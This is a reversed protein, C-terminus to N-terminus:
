NIRRFSVFNHIVLDLDNFEIDALMLIREKERLLPSYSTDLDVFTKRESFSASRGIPCWNIMSGRYDIFHGSLSPLIHSFILQREVLLKMLKNFKEVGIKEKM